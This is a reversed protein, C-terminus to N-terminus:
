CKGRQPTEWAKTIRQDFTIKVGRQEWTPVQSNSSPFSCDLSTSILLSLSNTIGGHGVNLGHGGIWTQIKSTYRETLKCYPLFSAIIPRGFGFLICWAFYQFFIVHKLSTEFNYNFMKFNYLYYWTPPKYFTNTWCGNASNGGCTFCWPYFSSFFLCSGWEKSPFVLMLWIVLFLHSVTISVSM